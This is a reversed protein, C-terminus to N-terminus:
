PGGRAAWRRGSASQDVPLTEPAVSLRKAVAVICATPSDYEEAHDAVLRVARTKFDEDYKKPLIRVVKGRFLTHM